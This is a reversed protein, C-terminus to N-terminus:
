ISACPLRGGALLCSLSAGNRCFSGTKKGHSVLLHMWDEEHVCREEPCIDNAVVLEGDIFLESRNEFVPLKDRVVQESAFAPHDSVQARRMVKIALAIIM